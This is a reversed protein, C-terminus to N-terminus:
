NSYYPIQPSLKGDFSLTSCNEGITFTGTSLGRFSFLQQPKLLLTRANPVHYCHAHITLTTAGTHFGWQVIGVFYIPPVHGMGLVTRPEPLTNIPGVSDMKWLSIYLSAGADFIIPLIDIQLLNPYDFTPSQIAM